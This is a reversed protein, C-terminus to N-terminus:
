SRKTLFIWVLRAVSVVFLLFAFLSGLSVIGDSIDRLGPELLRVLVMLVVSFILALLAIRVQVSTDIGSNNINTMNQRNSSARISVLSMIWSIVVGPIVFFIVLLLEMGSGSEGTTFFIAYLISLGVIAGLIKLYKKNISSRTKPATNPNM